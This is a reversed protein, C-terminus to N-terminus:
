ISSHSENKGKSQIELWDILTYPMHTMQETIPATSTSLTMEEESLDLHITISEVGGVYRLDNNLGTYVKRRNVSVHTVAQSPIVLQNFREEDMFVNEYYWNIETSRLKPKPFAM